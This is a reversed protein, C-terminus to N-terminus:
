SPQKLRAYSRNLNDSIAAITLVDAVIRTPAPFRVYGTSLGLAIWPAMCYQCTLLEGLARQIGTGAPQRQGPGQTVPSRLPETVRDKTLTRSVQQTAVGLLLLDGWPTRMGFRRRALRRTALVSLGSLYAFTLLSYAHHKHQPDMRGAGHLCVAVAAHLRM